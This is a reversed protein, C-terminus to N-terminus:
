LVWPTLLIATLIFGCLINAIFNPAHEALVAGSTFRAQKADRGQPRTNVQATM